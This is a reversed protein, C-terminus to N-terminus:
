PEKGFNGVRLMQVDVTSPSWEYPTHAFGQFTADVYCIMTNM